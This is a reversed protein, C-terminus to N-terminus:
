ATATASEPAALPHASVWRALGWRVSWHVAVALVLSNTLGFLVASVVALSAQQLASLAQSPDLFRRRWAPSLFAELAVLGLGCWAAWYRDAALGGLWNLTYAPAHRYFAWHAEFYAAERLMVWGPQSPPADGDLAANLLARRYASWSLALLLWAGIGVAAALGSRQAWDILREPLETGIQIGVVLGLNLDLAGGWVLAALPVGLYYLLRLAQMAWPSLPSARVQTVLKGTRGGAVHSLAWAAQAWAVAVAFSGALWLWSGVVAGAGTQV